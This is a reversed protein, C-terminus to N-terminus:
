ENSACGEENLWLHMKTTTYGLTLKHEYFQGYVSDVNQM